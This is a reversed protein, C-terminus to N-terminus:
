EDGEEEGESERGELEVNMEQEFEVDFPPQELVAVEPEGMDRLMNNPIGLEELEAGTKLLDAIRENPSTTRTFTCPRRFATCQSCSETHPDFNCAM